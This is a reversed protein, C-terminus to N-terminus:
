LIVCPAKQCLSENAKKLFLVQILLIEDTIHPYMRCVDHTFKTLIFVRGDSFINDEFLREVIERYVVPSDVYQVMVSWSTM